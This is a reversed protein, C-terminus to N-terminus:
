FFKLFSFHIPHLSCACRIVDFLALATFVRPATLAGGSAAFSLFSVLSVLLPIAEWLVGFAMELAVARTLTRLEAARAAEIRARFWFEWSCSKLLKMSSLAEATRAVRADKAVM